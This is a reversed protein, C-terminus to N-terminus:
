PCSPRVVTREPLFLGEVGICRDASPGPHHCRLSLNRLPDRSIFSRTQNRPGSCLLWSDRRHRLAQDGLALVPASLVTTSVGELGPRPSSPLRLGRGHIHEPSPNVCQPPPQPSHHSSAASPGGRMSQSATTRVTPSGSGGYAHGTLYTYGHAGHPRWSELPWRGTGLVSPPVSLPQCVHRLTSFGPQRGLCDSHTLFSSM